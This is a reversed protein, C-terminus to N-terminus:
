QLTPGQLHMSEEWTNIDEKQETQRTHDKGQVAMASNKTHKEEEGHFATQFAVTM